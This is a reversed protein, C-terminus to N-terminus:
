FKDLKDLFEDLETVYDKNAFSIVLGSNSGNKQILIRPVIKYEGEMAFSPNMKYWSVGEEGYVSVPLFNNIIIEEPVGFNLSIGYTKVFLVPDNQGSLEIQDYLYKSAPIDSVRTIFWIDVKNNAIYESSEFQQLFLQIMQQSEPDDPEFLVYLIFQKEERNLRNLESNYLLARQNRLRRTASVDSCNKEFFKENEGDKQISVIPELNKCASLVFDYYAIDKSISDLDERIRKNQRVQYEDESSSKKAQEEATPQKVSEKNGAACCILGTMLALIIFSWIVQWFSGKKKM